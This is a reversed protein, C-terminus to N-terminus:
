VVGVLMDYVAHTGAAIGFGRVLFVVAFFIGALTRFVFSYFDFADGLPGVYHALSFLGSTLLVAWGLAAPHTAGCRLLLWAVAPM